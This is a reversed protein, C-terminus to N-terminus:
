LYSNVVTLAALDVFFQFSGFNILYNNFKTNSLTNM